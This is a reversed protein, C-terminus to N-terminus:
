TIDDNGCLCSLMIHESLTSSTADVLILSAYHSWNWIKGKSNYFIVAIAQNNATVLLDTQFTISLSSKKKSRKGKAQQLWDTVSCQGSAPRRCRKWALVSIQGFQPSWVPNPWFDAHRTCFGVVTFPVPWICIAMAIELLPAGTCLLFETLPNACCNIM